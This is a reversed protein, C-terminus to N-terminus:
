GRPPLYKGEKFACEMGRPFLEDRKLWHENGFGSVPRYVKVLNGRVELTPGCNTETELKIAARFEAIGAAVSAKSKEADDRRQRIQAVLGDTDNAEYRAIYANMQEITKAAAFDERYRKAVQKELLAEIDPTAKELVALLKDRDVRKESGQAGVAALGFSFVTAVANAVSTTGTNDVMTLASACPNYLTLTGGRKSEADSWKGYSKMCGFRGDGSFRRNDRSYSVTENWAPAALKGDGSVWIVEQKGPEVRVRQKGALEKVDFLHTLALNGEPDFKFLLLTGTQAANPPPFNAVATPLSFKSRAKSPMINSSSPEAGTTAATVLTVPHILEISAIDGPLLIVPQPQAFQPTKAVVHLWSRKEKDVPSGVLAYDAESSAYFLGGGNDLVQGNLLTIRWQKLYVDFDLRSAQYFAFECIGRQGDRLRVTYNHYIGPRGFQTVEYVIGSKTTIRGTLQFGPDQKPLGERYDKCTKQTSGTTSGQAFAGLSIVVGCLVGGIGRLLGM